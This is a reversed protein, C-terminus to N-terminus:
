GLLLLQEGLARNGKALNCRLHSLRLNSLENAETGAISVPIAHDISPSLPDPHQRTMKVRGGCLHCRYGDRKAVYALSFLGDLRASGARRRIKRTLNHATKKCALSCYHADARTAQSLVKGCHPCSRMPKAANIAVQLRRRYHVQKCERSCFQSPRRHKPAYVEDCELCPRPEDTCGSTPPYRVRSWERHCAKCWNSEGRNVVSPHFEQPDTAGCKGCRLM